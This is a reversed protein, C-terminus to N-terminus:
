KAVARRKKPKAGRLAQEVLSTTIRKGEAKARVLEVPPTLKEALWFRYCWSCRNGREAREFIGAAAHPVCAPDGPAEKIGDYASILSGRATRIDGLAHALNRLCREAAVRIPDVVKVPDAAVEGVPDSLPPMPVGEDDVVSAPAGGGMSRSRFGDRRAASVLVMLHGLSPTRRVGVKRGADDYRDVIAGQELQDLAERLESLMRSLQTDDPMRAM